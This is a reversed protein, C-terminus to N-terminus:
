NQLGPARHLNQRQHLRNVEGLGFGVRVDRRARSQSSRLRQDGEDDRRLTPRRAGRPLQHAGGGSQYEFHLFTFGVAERRNPLHLTHTLLLQIQRQQLEFGCVTLTRQANHNLFVIAVAVFRLIDTFTLHLQWKSAMVARGGNNIHSFFLSPFNACMFVRLPTILFSNCKSDILLLIQPLLLQCKHKIPQSLM